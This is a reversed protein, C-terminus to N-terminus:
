CWIRYPALLAQVSYPIEQLLQGILIPGRNEYLHDVLLSIGMRIPAPVDDASAYGAVYTAIVANPRGFQLSPWAYSTIPMIRAPTSNLDAWYNSATVTRTVGDVDIYEVSTVSQVPGRELELVSPWCDHRQILTQTMLARQLYQEVHTRAGTILYELHADEADDTIRSWTKQQEVTIPESTPSVSITLNM